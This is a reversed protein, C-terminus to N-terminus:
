RTRLTPHGAPLHETGAPRGGSLRRDIARARGASHGQRWAADTRPNTRGTNTGAVGDAEGRARAAKNGRSM